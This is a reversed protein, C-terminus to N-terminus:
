LYKSQSRSWSGKGMIIIPVPVTGVRECNSNFFVNSDAAFYCFLVPAAVFYFFVMEFFVLDNNDLLHSQETAHTHGTCNLAAVILKCMALGFKHTHLYLSTLLTYHSYKHGYFDPVRLSFWLLPVWHRWVTKKTWAHRTCIVHPENPRFFDRVLPPSFFTRFEPGITLTCHKFVILPNFYTKFTEQYQM